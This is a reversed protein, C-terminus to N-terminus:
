TLSLFTAEPASIVGAAAMVEKLKPDAFFRRANEAHDWEMLITISHPDEAGRFVQKVGTAGAARRAPENADFGSRWKAYDAVQHKVELYIM